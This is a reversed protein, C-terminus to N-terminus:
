TDFLELRGTRFGIIEIPFKNDADMETGGLDVVHKNRNFAMETGVGPRLVVGGYTGNECVGRVRRVKSVDALEFIISSTHPSGKHCSM